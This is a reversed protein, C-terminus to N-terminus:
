EGIKEIFRYSDKCLSSVNKENNFITHYKVIFRSDLIGEKYLEFNISIVTSTNHYFLMGTYSVEKFSDGITRYSTKVSNLSSLSDFLTIEGMVVKDAFLSFTSFFFMVLLIKRM